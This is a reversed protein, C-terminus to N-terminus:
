TRKKAALIKKREERRKRSCDGPGSAQQKGQRAAFYLPHYTLRVSGGCSFLRIYDRCFDRLQRRTWPTSDVANVGTRRLHHLVDAPEPFSFIERQQSSHELTCYRRLMKEIQPLSFYELGIGTLARIEQLNDPGYLSFALFGGPKLVAALKAFLGDVDELWHFTSSSIILDFTGPLPVTEIDGPLFIPAAARVAPHLRDPFDPMLDNLLLQRICFVDSKILRRTLLGTCCGIELVRLPKDAAHQATLALLRDAVRHQIVAEREYAAAARRFQQCVLQKNIKRM